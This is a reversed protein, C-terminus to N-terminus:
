SRHGPAAPQLGRHRPPHVPARPLRRRHLHDGYGHVADPQASRQDGPEAGRDQARTRRQRQLAGRQGFATGRQHKAAGRQRRPAGRQHGPAGRQQDGAGRGHDAGVGPRTAAGAGTRPYLGGGRRRRQFRPPGAGARDGTGATAGRQAPGRLLPRRHGSRGPARGAGGPAGGPGGGGQRDPKAGEGAPGAQRLQAPRLDPRPQPSQQGAPDPPRWQLSGPPPHPLPRCRRLHAPGRAPRQGSFGRPHLPRPPRRLYSQAAGRHLDHGASASLPGSGAPGAPHDPRPERSAQSLAEM